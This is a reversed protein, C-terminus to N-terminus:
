QHDSETTDPTSEMRSLSKMGIYAAITLGTIGLVIPQAGEHTDLPGTSLCLCKM